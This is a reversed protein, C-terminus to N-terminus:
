RHLGDHYRKWLIDLGWVVLLLPWLRAFSMPSIVGYNELLLAIGAFVLIVPWIIHRKRLQHYTRDLQTENM